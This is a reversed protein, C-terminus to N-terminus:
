ALVEISEVQDESGFHHKNEMCNECVLWVPYYTSRQTTYGISRSPKYTIKYKPTHRISCTNM